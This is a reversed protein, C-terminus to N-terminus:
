RLRNKIAQTKPDPANSDLWAQLKAFSVSHVTRTVVEVRIDFVGHDDLIGQERVNRVALAAAEMVTSALVEASHRIGRGDTFNVECTRM